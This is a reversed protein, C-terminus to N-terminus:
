RTRVNRSGWGRAPTGFVRDWLGLFGAYNGKIKAHHFDHHVAGDGFPLFRTPSWPFAYGCHGECAEWQRFAIWIWLTLVHAGVMMPGILAVSGTAVYEVPHMYHGTVAWPTHIRHHVSHIKRYLWGGHMARHMWYYLFDDLYIFFLLQWLVEYWIPWAGAHVRSARLLPWSATVVVFMVLNNVIWLKISPLVLDQARPKRHQIRYKRMGESDRWAIWTLPAAFTAFAVVSVLQAAVPFLLFMPERYSELWAAM